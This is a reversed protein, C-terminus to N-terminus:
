LDMSMDLSALDPGTSDSSFDDFRIKTGKPKNKDDLKLRPKQYRKALSSSPEDANSILNKPLEDQAMLDEVCSKLLASAMIDERRLALARHLYDMASHLEGKIAHVFGIATFTASNIPKLRLANKHCELARDYKKNKRYCHGLNNYLPEWRVGIPEGKKEAMTTVM